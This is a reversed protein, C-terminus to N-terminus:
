TFNIADMGPFCLDNSISVFNPKCKCQYDNCFSNSVVCQHDNWCPGGIIPSCTWSNVAINNVKCACEKDNSCQAHWPDGCDLNNECSHKENTPVCQSASISSFKPKCQCKNNMCHITNYRCNEDISCNGGIIPACTIEDIATNNKSCVCIKDPSCVANPIISCDNNNKCAKGLTLLICQNNSKPVYFPKCHCKSSDCFSDPTLCDSDNSCHGNLLPTCLTENMATYNQKCVCKKDDSCEANTIGQCDVTSHCFKETFELVCQNNNIPVFHIQCKCMNDICESNEMACKESTSCFEELLPACAKKNLKAHNNKCVCKKNISCRANKIKRCDIDDKCSLGLRKPLCQNNSQSTVNAKCACKNEVCIANDTACIENNQCDQNLLPACVTENLAVYNPKCICDRNKGCVSNKKIKTCNEDNDCYSESFVPTCNTNSQHIFNQQCQCKNDICISFHPFCELDSDCHEDILSECRVNTITVYNLKCVCENNSSCVAYKIYQCDKDIRCSQKLYTPLCQNSRELYNVKCQCETDVCISNDTACTENKWCFKGLLPACTILDLQVNNERCVCKKKDLCKAHRIEDCDENTECSKGIYHSICENDNRLMFGYKCQCKDNSCFSNDFVCQKDNQCYGNMPVICTTDNLQTYNLRCVCQNDETCTAYPIKRCDSNKLCTQGLNVALCEENLVALYNSKCQCRKNICVSNIVTCQEDSMCLGTLKPWCTTENLRLYDHLVICLELHFANAFTQHCREAYSLCPGDIPKATVEKNDKDCLTRNEDENNYQCKNDICDSNKAACLDDYFCDININPACITGNIPIYDVDCFCENNILCISHEIISNCEKDSRCPMSLHRGCFQDLLPACTISNLQVHNLKCICKKNISCMSDLVAGCDGDVKCSM